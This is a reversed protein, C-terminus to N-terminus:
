YHAAVVEPDSTARPPTAGAVQEIAAELRRFDVPKTLHLAFGAERSTAVDEAAGFGSLAIGPWHYMQRLARMLDHGSGDPLGLDSIVLDFPQRAAAACEMAAGISRVATVDHKARKLLRSMLTLTDEHDEVLLLRLGRRSQEPTQRRPPGSAAPAPTPPAAAVPIRVNFTAGRDRGESSASLEGGHLTILEHSIALGLGMGGFRSEISPDGQEFPRFIRNLVQPEMGIGSDRIEVFLKENGNNATRVTINGGPPTFKISNRLLNWFVQRLRAADARVHHRAAELELQVNLRKTRAEEQCIRVADWLASHADLLEFHMQLKGRSLRAVDLLDDILRAELDINRRILGLDERTDPPLSEDSELVSVAALVPNLPTRLEHSLVALFHDKARNAAEADEKAQTARQLARRSATQLYSVLSAVGLFVILRVV